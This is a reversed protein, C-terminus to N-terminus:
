PSNRPAPEVEDAAASDKRRMYLHIATSHYIHTEPGVANPFTLDAPIRQIAPAAGSAGDGADEPEDTEEPEETGRGHPRGTWRRDDEERDRRSRRPRRPPVAADATEAGDASAILSFPWPTRLIAFGDDTLLDILKELQARVRKWGVPDQILPYPPDLFVLNVPRPCRALAGPGLADGVVVECRDGVGLAEINRRLLDAASKDREIFVCREAGRSIAELGIAGTGAFGDFVHAGETHGRLLGFLSEKVRDPIPRTVTDDRPTLLRRSRFEGAIIRM